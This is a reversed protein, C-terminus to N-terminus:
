QAKRIELLVEQVGALPADLSNELIDPLYRMQMQKGELDAQVVSRTHSKEREMLVSHTEMGEFQILHFGRLIEESATLKKGMELSWAKFLNQRYALVEETKLSSSTFMFWHKFDISESSYQEADWTFHIVQKKSILFLDFPNYDAYPLQQLWSQVAPREGQALAGPIIGGRSKANETQPGQYRNLLALIVGKNNVGFWSGGSALDVPYFFRVDNTSKSHLVGAEKRTRLEDRNMTVVCRKKGSYVTLTCV